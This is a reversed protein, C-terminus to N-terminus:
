KVSSISTSFACPVPLRMGSTIQLKKDAALIGGTLTYHRGNGLYLERPRYQLDPSHPPMQQGGAPVVAGTAGMATSIWIGSGSHDESLDDITIIYKSFAAPRHHAILLDNIATMELPVGDLKLSLRNLPLPPVQGNCYNDFVAAFTDITTSCYHGVSREPDSNVGLIPQTGIRRSAEIFTGDGGVAIVM